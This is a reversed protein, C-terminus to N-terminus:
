GINASWHDEFFGPNFYSGFGSRARAPVGQARLMAVLLLMPHHCVGVLRKQPPRATSIVLWM